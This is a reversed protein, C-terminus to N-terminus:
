AKETEAIFLANALLHLRHSKGSDPDIEEGNMLATAHRLLSDMQTGLPEGAKGSRFGGYKEAGHELLEALGACARPFRLIHSLPPKPM